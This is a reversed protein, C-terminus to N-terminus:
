TSIGNADTATITELYTGPAVGTAVNLRVYKSSATSTDLTIGSSALSSSLTFTYPGVGGNVTVTDVFSQVSDLVVNTSTASEVISGTVTYTALYTTAAGKSDTATITELYTGSALGNSLTFYITNGSITPTLGAITPSASITNTDTGQTVTYTPTTTPGSQSLAFSTTGSASAIFRPANVAFNSFVDTSSLARNYVQVNGIAGNWKGGQNWNSGIYVGGGTATTATTAFSSLQVGNVYLRVAAGDYSVTYQYWVGPTPAFAASTQYWTNSTHFGGYLTGSGNFYISYNLHVNNYYASLPSYSGTPPIINSKAWVSATFNALTTTTANYAYQTSGDFNLAGASNTTYTPSGALTFNKGNGSLDYWTSGTGTESLPNAADVHLVLGNQIIGSAFTPFTNVRVTVVFRVTTGVSDTITVTETYTDVPTSNSVKLVVFGSAATTTDLTIGGNMNSSSTLTFRKAGTGNLATITESAAVTVTTKLTTGTSGTAALPGAWYAYLTQVGGTPTLTVTDGSRYFTGTGDARTNWSTFTLGTFAFTSSDINPLVFTNTDYRLIDSPTAGTGGNLDFKLTAGYQAYLKVNSTTTLSDGFSYSTGTGNALINWRVATFGNKLLTGTNGPLALTITDVETISNPVSGSTASNSDFSIVPPNANWQIVVLGDGAESCAVTGCNYYGGRGANLKYQTSTNGGPTAYGQTGNGGNIATVIQTSSSNVYGSGGGGGGNQQGGQCSGGGGGYYGGGGGGGGEVSAGGAGTGGQFRSGSTPAISCSVYTSAGAGGASLTGGQGAVTALGGSSGSNGAAGGGGAVQGADGPSAGGGGGSIILPTSTDSGFYVGTLGGGNSGTQGTGGNGGAGGGGFTTVNQQSAGGEGVLVTLTEGSAIITHTAKTYGGAAGGNSGVWGTTYWSGGGGAGWEEIQIPLGPFLYTPLQYSQVKGTYGVYICNTFGADPTCTAPQTIVRPYVVNIQITESDTAGAADTVTITEWYTGVTVASSVRLVAIGSTSTDLTIGSNSPNSTLTYKYQTTGSSTTFTDVFVTGSDMTIPGSNTATLVPPSNVLVTIVVSATAGVSDTVTVTDYYLGIPVAASVNLRAYGSAATSTDLTIGAHTPNGIFTFAKNGSGSTAFVTDVATRGFTTTLAYTTATEVIPGNVTITVKLTTTASASDTATITEIYVGAPVASSVNIVGQNSTSTDLTIGSNSPTIVYTLRKTGYGGSALYTGSSSNVGTTTIFTSAGSLSLQAPTVSGTTAAVSTGVGNTATVTFTYATGNTLGSVTCSTAGTTTCTLNGPSSTVTYGTIPSGNNTAPASWSIVASASAPAAVVSQPASSIGAQVKPYAMISMGSIGRCDIAGSATSIVGGAGWDIRLGYILSGAPVSITATVPGGRRTARTAPTPSAPQNTWASPIVNTPTYIVSTSLDASTYVTVSEATNDNAFTFSISNAPSIFVDRWWGSNNALFTNTLSCSSALQNANVQWNASPTNSSSTSITGTNSWATISNQAGPSPAANIVSTSGLSNTRTVQARLYSGVQGSVPTYTSSTAGSVSSWTLLDSSIQWQYSTTPALDGGDNWTGPTVGM